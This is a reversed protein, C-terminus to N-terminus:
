PIVQYELVDLAEREFYDGNANLIDVDRQERATRARSRAYALVAKEIVQSRNGGKGALRDVVRLAERSLSVSTKVRMSGIYWLHIGLVATMAIVFICFAAAEYWTICNIPRDDDGPAPSDKWTAYSDCKM